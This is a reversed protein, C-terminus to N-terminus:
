ASRDAALHDQGERGKGRGSPDDARAWIRSRGVAEIPHLDLANAGSVGLLLIGLATCLPRRM